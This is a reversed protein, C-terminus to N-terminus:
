ANSQEVTDAEVPNAWRLPAAVPVNLYRMILMVQTRPPVAPDCEFWFEQEDEMLSDPTVVLNGARIGVAALRQVVDAPLVYHQRKIRVCIITLLAM